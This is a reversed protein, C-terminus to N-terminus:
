IGRKGNSSYPCTQHTGSFYRITAVLNNPGRSLDWGWRDLDPAAVLVDDHQGPVVRVSLAPFPVGDLTVLYLDGQVIVKIYHKSNGTDAFGSNKKAM